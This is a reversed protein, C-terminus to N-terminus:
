KEMGQVEMGDQEDIKITRRIDEAVLGIAEPQRIGTLPVVDYLENVIGSCTMAHPLSGDRLDIVQLGCRASVDYKALQDDLPLGQFSKNHRAESLGAVTFNGVFCLGRLYGPCFAVPEFIGKEIDVYGFEGTGSNLIWLKDNHWRPSHPMSLGECIIENSEVDIVVGGSVRHERWGENVDTKSVATVYKPKGDKMALGNMHCRDEPALRSIFSPKWIPRFSYGDSLTAICSFLSNIFVLNGDGDIAMDHIDLDGTTYATTPLYLCDCDGHLVGPELINDLRWIQYLTSMFVRHPGQSCLGMVRNFTREFIAMKGEPNLGVMFLKGAQYTSFMFSTQQEAMWSTWMRTGTVDLKREAGESISM